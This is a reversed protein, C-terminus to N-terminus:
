ENDEVKITILKYGYQQCLMAVDELLDLMKDGPYNSKM